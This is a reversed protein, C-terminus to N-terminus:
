SVINHQQAVYKHIDNYRDAPNKKGSRGPIDRQGRGGEETDSDIRGGHQSLAQRQRQYDNDASEEAKKQSQKNAHYSQPQPAHIKRNKGEPENFQDLM